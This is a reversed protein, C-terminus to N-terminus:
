LSAPVDVKLVCPHYFPRQVSLSDTLMTFFFLSHSFLCSSSPSIPVLRLCLTFFPLAFYFADGPVLSLLGLYQTTFVLTFSRIYGSRHFVLACLAVRAPPPRSKVSGISPSLIKFSKLASTPFFNQLALPRWYPSVSKVLLLLSFRVQSTLFPRFRVPLSCGDRLPRRPVVYPFLHTSFPRLPACYSAYFHLGNLRGALLNPPGLEM